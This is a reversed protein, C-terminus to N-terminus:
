TLEGIRHGGAGNRHMFYLECVPLTCAYFAALSIRM